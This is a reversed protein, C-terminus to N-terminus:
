LFPAGVEGGTNAQRNFGPLDSQLSGTFIIDPELDAGGIQNEQSRAPGGSDALRLLLREGTGRLLGAVSHLPL